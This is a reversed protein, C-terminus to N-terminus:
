HMSTSDLASIERVPLARAADTSIRACHRWPTPYLGLPPLMKKEICRELSM